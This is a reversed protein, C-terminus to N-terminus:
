YTSPAECACGYGGTVYKHSNFLCETHTTKPIGPPSRPRRVMTDGDTLGKLSVDLGRSAGRLGLGGFILRPFRDAAANKFGETSSLCLGRSIEEGPSLGENPRLREEGPKLGEM